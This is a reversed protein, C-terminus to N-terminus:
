LHSVSCTLHSLSPGLARLIVEVSLRNDGANERTLALETVGACVNTVLLWDALHSLLPSELNRLTLKNIRSTKEAHLAGTTSM